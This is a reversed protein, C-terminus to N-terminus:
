SRPHSPTGSTAPPRERPPNPSAAATPPTPTPPRVVQQPQRRPNAPREEWTRNGAGDYAYRIYDKADDACQDVAYCVATLQDLADYTYAAKGAASDNTLVLNDGADYSSAVTHLPKGPPALRLETERGRLDYLRTETLGSPRRTTISGRAVDYAYSAAPKGDVKASTLRNVADWTYTETHGAASRSQLNGAPDWKYSVSSGPRSVATLQDFTDYGFRTVGGVDTMTTRRGAADWTFSNSPTKDSYDVRTMAGRADLTFAASKGSPLTTGVLRGAKDHSFRWTRGGYTTATLRGAADHESTQARGSADTQKILRGSADFEATAEPLFPATVGVLQGADDYRYRTTGGRADTSAALRGRDDYDMRTNQDLPGHQELPQDDASYTVATTQGRPGTVKSPRGWGDVEYKTINGAPDTTSTLDGDPSYASRTTRGTSDRISVPLGRQDYTVSSTLGAYSMTTLNGRSDYAFTSRRGLPDTTSVPDDSSNFSRRTTFGAADTSSTVRGLADYTHRAGHGLPDFVRILNGASDYHFTVAVGTPDTQRILWNREYENIWRGGTPDTMTSKGRIGAGEWTWTSKAGKGDTQSVVRGDEDYETTLTPRSAEGRNENSLRGAADYGYETRVGGPSTVAVLKGATYEYQVRRAEVGQAALVVATLLGADDYIYDLSRRGNTVSGIRGSEHTITLGRGNRDLISLLEGSSSFRMRQQAVDTLVYDTGSRGLTFRAAGPEVVFGTGRQTFAIERGDSALYTASRGTVVLKDSYSTRWGPGLSGATPDNSNYTRDISLPVGLGAVAADTEVATLAGTLSNV